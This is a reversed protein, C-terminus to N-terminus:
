GHPALTKLLSPSVGAAPDIGDRQCEREFVAQNAEQIRELGADKRKENEAEVMGVLRAAKPDTRNLWAAAMDKLRPSVTENKWEDRADLQAAVREERAAEEHMPWSRNECWAVIKAPTPMFECEIVVGKIPDSCALAVIRPYQMLLEAIAGVYTKGAQGANAYGRIMRHVADLAESLLLRDALARKVSSSAPKM